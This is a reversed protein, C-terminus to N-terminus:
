KGRRGYVPNKGNRAADKQYQIGDRKARFQCRFGKVRGPVAPPRKTLAVRECFLGQVFAENLAQKCCPFLCEKELTM